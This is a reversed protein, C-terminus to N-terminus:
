AAIKMAPSAAGAAPAVVDDFNVLRSVPVSYPGRESRTGVWCASVWVRTGPPVEAPVVVSVDTRGTLEAMEWRGVDAPPADGAFTYVAAQRANAPRRRRDPSAVDRLRLLFLHGSVGVVEVGPAASPAPVVSPRSRITIGLAARKDDDMVPSAQMIDILGKTANYLHRRATAKAVTNAPSRTVPSKTLEWAALWRSRTVAYESMQGATVGYADPSPSAVREINATIADFAADTLNLGRDSM